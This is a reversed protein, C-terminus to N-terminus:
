RCSRGSGLAAGCNKCFTGNMYFQWNHKREEEKVECIMLKALHKNDKFVQNLLANIVSPTVDLGTDLLLEVKIIM